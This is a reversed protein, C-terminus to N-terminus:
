RFDPPSTESTPLSAPTKGPCKNAVRIKKLLLSADARNKFKLFSKPYLTGHKTRVEEVLNYTGGIKKKFLITDLGQNTKGAYEVSDYNEVIDPLHKFDEPTLPVQGRLLETESSGHSRRIHGASSYDVMHTHAEIDVGTKIRIDEATRKDAKSFPVKKDTGKASFGATAIDVLDADIEKRTKALPFKDKWDPDTPRHKKKETGTGHTRCTSPDQARCEGGSNKLPEAADTIPSIRGIPSILGIDADTASYGKQGGNPSLHPASAASSNTIAASIGARAAEEMAASLVDATASNSYIGEILEPLNERIESLAAAYAEETSADALAEIKATLPAWDAQEAAALKSLTSAQIEALTPIQATQDNNPSGAAAEQPRNAVEKEAGNALARTNPLPAPNGPFIPGNEAPAKYTLKYGTKESVEDADAIYGATGLASINSIYDGTDESEDPAILFYALRPAGPFQSELVERDIGRQFVESIKIADGAALTAFVDAHSAAAGSGLGGAMALSTLMGGTGALVLRQQLHELRDKFLSVIQAPFEVANYTSGNPLYGPSGACIAAADEAYKKEAESPVNPPGIIIGSPKAFIEQAADWNRDTISERYYKVLALSALPRPNERILWNAADITYEAPLSEFTTSIADPNYKWAGASGDRILHWPQVCNFSTIAGTADRVKEALSFGRFVALALHEITATLNEIREYASRLAVLQREALGEDFGSAKDESVIRIDWDMKLIASTRREVLTLMDADGSEIGIAPAALLWMLDAFEGRTYSELLSVIRRATLDRRPNTYDRWLKKSPVGSTLTRGKAAAQAARLNLKKPTSM